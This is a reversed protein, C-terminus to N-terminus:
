VQHRGCIERGKYTICRTVAVYKVSRKVGIRSCIERKTERRNVAVYKVGTSLPPPSPIEVFFKEFNKVRASAVIKRDHATRHSRMPAVITRVITLGPENTHGVSSRM